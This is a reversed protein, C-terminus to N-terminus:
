FSQYFVYIAKLFLLIIIRGFVEEGHRTGTFIIVLFLILSIIFLILELLLNSTTQNTVDHNRIEWWCLPDTYDTELLNCLDYNFESM